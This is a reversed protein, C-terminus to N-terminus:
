SIKAVFYASVCRGSGTFCIFVEECTEGTISYGLIKQLYDTMESDDAMSASVMERVWSDDAHEDYNVDCINFLMDEPRRRRLKGTRLDVVGNLVALLHKETDLQQEFNRVEFYSSGFSLINHAGKHSRVYHIVKAVSAIKQDLTNKTNEDLANHAEMTFKVQINRLTDELSKSILLKVQSDQIVNWLCTEDDFYYFDHKGRGSSLKLNAKLSEGAIQCLGIDSRHWNDLAYQPIDRVSLAQYAALNDERAWTKLTGIGIKSPVDRDNEFSTWKKRAESDDYKSSQASYKLWCWEMDMKNDNGFNFIIFGLRYWTNYDDWRPLKLLNLYEVLEKVSLNRSMSNSRNNLAPRAHRNKRIKLLDDLLDDPVDPISTNTLPRIWQKNKSPAIVLIGGNGTSCLTKVDISLVVDPNDDFDNDSDNGIWEGEGGHVGWTIPAAFQRAGDFLPIENCKDTRGLIYHFGKSTSEKPCTKLVDYKEEFLLSSPVDDFDLCFLSKCIIAVDFSENDQRKKMYFHKFKDLSWKNEGAHRFLCAKTVQDTLMMFDDPRNKKLFNFTKSMSKDYATQTMTTPM